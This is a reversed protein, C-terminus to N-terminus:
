LYICSTSFSYGIVLHGLTIYLLHSTRAVLFHNSELYMFIRFHNTGKGEQEDPIGDGDDDSDLHDPIGDGDTDVAHFFLFYSFLFVVEIKHKMM